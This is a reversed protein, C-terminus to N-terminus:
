AAKRQQEGRYQEVSRRFEAEVTQRILREAMWGIAYGIAAFVLAIVLADGVARPGIAAGGAAHLLRVALAIVALCAAYGRAM